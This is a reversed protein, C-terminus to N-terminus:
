ATKITDGWDIWKLCERNFGETWIKTKEPILFPISELVEADSSASTIIQLPVRRHDWNTRAGGAQYNLLLHGLAEYAYGDYAPMSYGIMVIVSYSDLTRHMNQWLDRIPDSGLLKDYAPPLLFPVVEWAPAFPFYDCHNPVRFVHTLLETGLGEAVSDRSLSETPVSKNPGFLPDRDPVEANLDSFYERKQHYDRRDYWDISGHLKIIDVFRPIYQNESGGYNSDLWWEPTLSYPKSVEEMSQELLTDYNFTLVVDYPTLQSAFERFLLPTKQSLRETLISQIAQRAAVISRSGHDFYEDSGIVRLFHKRHSYALVSELNLMKGPYLEKWESIEKEFAGDWGSRRFMQRVRLRVEELLESGLPFGVPKSFGAGLIFLRHRPLNINV